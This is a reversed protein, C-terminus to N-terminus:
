RYPLDVAWRCLSVTVHALVGFKIFAEYVAARCLKSVLDFEPLGAFEAFIIEPRQTKLVLPIDLAM